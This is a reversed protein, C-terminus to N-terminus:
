HGGEGIKEGAEGGLEDVEGTNGDRGGDLRFPHAGGQLADVLLKGSGIGDLTEIAGKGGVEGGVVNGREEGARSGEAQLVGQAVAEGAEGTGVLDHFVEGCRNGGKLGLKLLREDGQAQAGEGGGGM